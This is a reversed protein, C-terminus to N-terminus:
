TVDITSGVSPMELDLVDSDSTNAITSQVSPMELELAPLITFEQVNQKLSEFVELSADGVHIFASSVYLEYDGPEMDEIIYETDTILDSNIKEDNLYVNYGEVGAIADWTVTVDFGSQSFAVNNPAADITVDVVDSLVSEFDGALATIQLDYDGDLLPVIVANIETTPEDLALEGDLYINYSTARVVTDWVIFIADFSVSVEIVTPAEVPDILERIYDTLDLWRPPNIDDTFYIVLRENM